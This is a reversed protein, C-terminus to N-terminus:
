ILNVRIYVKENEENVDVEALLSDEESKKLEDILDAIDSAKLRITRNNIKVPLVMDTQALLYIFRTSLFVDVTVNEKGSLVLINVKLGDDQIMPQYIRETVMKELLVAIFNQAENRDLKGEDFLKKIDQISEMIGRKSASINFDIL